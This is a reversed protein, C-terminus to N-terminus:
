RIERPLSALPDAALQAHLRRAAAAFDELYREVVFHLHGDPAVAVGASEVGKVMSVTAPGKILYEHAM